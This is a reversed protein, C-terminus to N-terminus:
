LLELSAAGLDVCIPWFAGKSQLGLMLMTVVLPRPNVGLLFCHRPGTCSVWGLGGEQSVAIPRLWVSIVGKHGCWLQRCAHGGNTVNIANLLNRQSRTGGRPVSSLLPLAQCGAARINGLTLYALWCM